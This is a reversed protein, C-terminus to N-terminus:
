RLCYVMLLEETCFPLVDPLEALEYAASEPVSDEPVLLLGYGVALPALCSPKELMMKVNVVATVSEIVKPM